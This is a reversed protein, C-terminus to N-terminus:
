RGREVAALLAEPTAPRALEPEGGGFARVADRLAHWVAIGLMLPPEGVAKSGGITGPQTADALLEVRLDDPVDGSAPIKYTSPGLTRVAGDPGFAVDECTLWGVGQVLGGEVQGRDISPVLSDGVDHLVDIRRIRHEGTWGSLEVEALAVGYAFYYFPTGQGGKRDYAIGPTRYYGTSSLSVRDIWAQKAVEAFTLARTPGSVVGDVFRVRGVDCGLMAAAVGAMRGRVVEAAERVAQGNLDSGSSAATASTNPVKETSTPMVRVQDARVGLVDACVAIM